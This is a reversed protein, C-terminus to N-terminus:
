KTVILMQGTDALKFKNTMTELILEFDCISVYEHEDPERAM